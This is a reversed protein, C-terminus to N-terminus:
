LKEGATQAVQCCPQLYVPQDGEFEVVDAKNRRENRATHQVDTDNVQHLSKRAVEELDRRKPSPVTKPALLPPLSPSDM